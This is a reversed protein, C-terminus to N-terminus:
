HRLRESIIRIKGFLSYFVIVDSLLLFICILMRSIFLSPVTVNSILNRYRDSLLCSSLLISNNLFSYLNYVCTNKPVVFINSSFGANGTSPEIAGKTLLEDVDKQIVPFHALAAKFQKLHHFLVPHCRLQLHDCKVMNLVFRSSTISRWQDLFKSLTGVQVVSLASTLSTTSQLVDPIGDEM